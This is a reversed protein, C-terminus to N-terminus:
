SVGLTVPKTPPEVCGAAIELALHALDRVLHGFAGTRGFGFTSKSLPSCTLTISPGNWSKLPTTSSTLGSLPLNRTSILMKPRAVGDLEVEHLDFLGSAPPDRLHRFFTMASTLSCIGAPAAFGLGGTPGASPWRPTLM